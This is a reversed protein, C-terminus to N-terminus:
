VIMPGDARDTMLHRADDGTSAKNGGLNRAPMTASSPLERKRVAKKM